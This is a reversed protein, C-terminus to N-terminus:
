EFRIAGRFIQRDSHQSIFPWASYFKWLTFAARDVLTEVRAIFGNYPFTTDELSFDDLAGQIEISASYM